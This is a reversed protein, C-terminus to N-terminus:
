VEWNRVLHVMYCIFSTLISLMVILFIDGNSFGEAVAQGVAYSSHAHNAILAAGLLSAIAIVALMIIVTVLNYAFSKM